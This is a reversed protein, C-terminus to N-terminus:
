NFIPRSVEHYLNLFFFIPHRLMNSTIFYKSKILKNLSNKFVSVFFLRSVGDSYGGYNILNM